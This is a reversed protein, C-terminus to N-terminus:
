TVLIEGGGGMDIFKVDCTLKLFHDHRRTCTSQPDLTGVTLKGYFRLTSRIKCYNDIFRQFVATYGSHAPEHGKVPHTNIGVREYSIYVGQPNPTRYRDYFPADIATLAETRLDPFNVKAAELSAAKVKASIGRGQYQALTRGGTAVATLGSDM